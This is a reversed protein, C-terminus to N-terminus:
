GEIEKLIQLISQKLTAIHMDVVDWLFNRDYGFYDHVVRSRFAIIENWPIHKYNNKIHSSLNNAAEGINEICKEVAREILIEERKDVSTDFSEIENISDIIGKLFIIDRNM